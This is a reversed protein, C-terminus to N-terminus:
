KSRTVRWASSARPPLPRWGEHICCGCGGGIAAACAGEM